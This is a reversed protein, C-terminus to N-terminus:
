GLYRTAIMAYMKSVKPLWTVDVYENKEHTGGGKKPDSFGRAPGLHLCPIKGVGAFTNADTIGYAYEYLPPRGMVGRYVGDLTEMISEDRSCTYPEYKPPKVSIEVGSKLHLSDDLRRLIDEIM